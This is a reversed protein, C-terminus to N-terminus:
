QAEKVTLDEDYHLIYIGENVFEGSPSRVYNFKSEMQETKDEKATETFSKAQSLRLLTDFTIDFGRTAYNSPFINNKKKYENEFNVASASTNERILAPYLMKLITLRKMSIEEFNLTENQELIALQIQYNGMENLLLNTASLIMGTRESDLIVYNTRGPVLLSKLSESRLSGNESLEVYRVQPYTRAIFERNAQKKPDSIAIINGNKSLMYNLLATKTYDSSPMAQYLNRYATGKEKSLPSIVPISDKELLEAVKEVHHQYFPGIVADATRINQTRIINAVNSSSRNEESDFIRVNVNLNLARASDIAMLAGSYFDMTMNLFADSKLRNATSNLSDNQIKSANFPLLMVLEKREATSLSQLLDKHGKSPEMVMSGIGPVKLIMGTRVGEHLTPNLEILETQSINFMQSLSYLTEKPKVEYNAYQKNLISKIRETQVTSSKPIEYVPAKPKAVAAANGAAITLKHGIPLSQVVSPNQRELEAVTIGYKKAISFMTQGPEVVHYVPESATGPDPVVTRTTVTTVNDPISIIQGSKLGDSLLSANALRLDDVTVNYDRAISFLTEKPQVSHTRNRVSSPKPSQATASKSPILIIDNERIGSRSDPNLRYIDFPTVKYKQAIQTVTESKAVTHRIYQDSQAVIDSTTFFLISFVLIFYKM